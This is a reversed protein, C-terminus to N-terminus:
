TQSGSGTDGATSSSAPTPRRPLFGEAARARHQGAMSRNKVQCLIIDRSGLGILDWAGLSAASRTVAYGAAELVARSRNENKTGKAKANM